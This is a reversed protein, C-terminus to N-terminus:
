LSQRGRAGSSAGGGMNTERVAMITRNQVSQARVLGARIEPIWGKIIAYRATMVMDADDSEQHVDEPSGDSADNETGENSETDSSSETHLDEDEDSSPIAEQDGGGDMCSTMTLPLLPRMSPCYKRLFAESRENELIITETNYGRTAKTSLFIDASWRPFREDDTIYLLSMVTDAFQLSGERLPDARAGFTYMVAWTAPILRDVLDDGTAVM